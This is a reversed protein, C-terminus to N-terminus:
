SPPRQPAITIGTKSKTVNSDESSGYGDAFWIECNYSLACSIYLKKRNVFVFMRWIPMDKQVLTSFKMWMPGSV